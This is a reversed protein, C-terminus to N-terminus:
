KIESFRSSGSAVGEKRKEILKNLFNDIDEELWASFRRGYKLPKPLRGQRVLSYVTAKSCALRETVKKLRLVTSKNRHDM